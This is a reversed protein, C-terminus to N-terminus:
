ARSFERAIGSWHWAFRHDRWVSLVHLVVRGSPSAALELQSAPSLGAATVSALQGLAGATLKVLTTM